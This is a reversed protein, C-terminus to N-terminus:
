KIGTTLRYSTGRQMREELRVTWPGRVTDEGGDGDGGGDGDLGGDGEDLLGGSGQSGTMGFGGGRQGMGAADRAGGGQPPIGGSLLLQQLNMMSANPDVRWSSLMQPPISASAATLHSISTLTSPSFM